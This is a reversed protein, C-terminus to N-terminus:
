QPWRRRREALSRSRGSATWRWGTGTQMSRGRASRSLASLGLHDRIPQHGRPHGRVRRRESISASSLRPIRARPEGSRTRSRRSDDRSDGIGHFLTGQPGHATRLGHTEQNTPDPASNRRRGRLKVRRPGVRVGEVRANPLAGGCTISPPVWGVETLYWASNGGM